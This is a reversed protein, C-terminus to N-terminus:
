SEEPWIMDWVFLYIEISERSLYRHLMMFYGGGTEPDIINVNYDVVIKGHFLIRQDEARKIEMIFSNDYSNVKYRVIFIKNRIRVFGKQPFGLDPNFPMTLLPYSEGPDDYTTM